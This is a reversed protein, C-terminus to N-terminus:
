RCDFDYIMDLRCQSVAMIYYAGMYIFFIWGVLGVQDGAFQTGATATRIYLEGRAIDPCLSDGIRADVQLAMGAAKAEMQTTYRAACLPTLPAGDMSVATDSHRLTYDPLM